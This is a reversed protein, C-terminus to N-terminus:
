REYLEEITHDKHYINTRIWGNGQFVSTKLFEDTITVIMQENYENSSTYLGNETKGNYFEDLLDKFARRKIQGTTEGMRVEIVKGNCEDCCRGDNSLPFPNNGFGTFECGCICCQITEM